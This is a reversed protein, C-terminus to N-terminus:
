GFPGWNPPLDIICTGLKERAKQVARAEKLLRREDETMSKYDEAIWDWVEKIALLSKLNFRSHYKGWLERKHDEYKEGSEILGRVEDFLANFGSVNGFVVKKSIYGRRYNEPELVRLHGKKIDRDVNHLLGIFRWTEQPYNGDRSELFKNYLNSCAPSEELARDLDWGSGDPKKFPEFEKHLRLLRPSM